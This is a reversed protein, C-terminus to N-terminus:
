YSRRMLSQLESTHEESRLDAARRDARDAVEGPQLMYLVVVRIEDRGFVHHCLGLVVVEREGLARPFGVMDAVSMAVDGRGAQDFVPDVDGPEQALQDERAKGDEAALKTGLLLPCFSLSRFLTTDPFLTDTRTSRPPRRAM